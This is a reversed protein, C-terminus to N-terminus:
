EKDFVAIMNMPTGSATVGQTMLTMTKGDPSVVRMTVQLVKGRHKMSTLLTDSDIWTASLADSDGGAVPYEKGDAKFVFQSTTESGDNRVTKSTVVLGDASPAFTRTASKPPPGGNFHSKALNLRWTGIAPDDANRHSSPQAERATSPPATVATRVPSENVLLAPISNDVTWARLRRLFSQGLLLGGEAPSVSGVVNRLELNGIKLSRIQFRQSSMQSGDALVYTSTGLLDSRTITGTRILTSFVDKPIAVDAAGTDLTFSLTIQNNIIVPVVFTGNESKLRITEARLATIPHLALIALAVTVIINRLV